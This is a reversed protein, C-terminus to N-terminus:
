EVLGDVEAFPMVGTTTIFVKENFDADMIDLQKHSRTIIFMAIVKYEDSDGYYSETTTYVIRLGSAKHLLNIEFMRYIEDSQFRESNKYEQSIYKKFQSEDYSINNLDLRLGIASLIQDQKLKSIKM